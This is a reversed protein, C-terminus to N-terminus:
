DEVEIREAPRRKGDPGAPFVEWDGDDDSLQVSHGAEDAFRKAHQIAEDCANCGQLGETLTNGTEIDYIAAMEDENTPPQAPIVTGVEIVYRM